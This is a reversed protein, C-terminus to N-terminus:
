MVLWLPKRDLIVERQQGNKSAITLSHGMDAALSLRTFADVDSLRAVPAGGVAVVRDGPKIGARQAPSRPLVSLVVLAEQHIEVALGVGQHPAPPAARITLNALNDLTLRARANPIANGPLGTSQVAGMPDASVPGDWDWVELRLQADGEIVVNRPLTANWVPLHTDNQVASKWLLQGNLYLRVFPDPGSGDTDWPLGAPTRLPLEAELVQLVWLNRPIDDARVMTTPVPVTHTERRPYACAAVLLTLLLVVRLNM